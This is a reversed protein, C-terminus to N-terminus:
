IKREPDFLILFNNKPMDEMKINECEPRIIAYDRWADDVDQQMKARHMVGSEYMKLGSYPNYLKGDADKFFPGKSDDYMKQKDPIGVYAGVEEREFVNEYEVHYFGLHKTAKVKCHIGRRNLHDEIARKGAEYAYLKSEPNDATSLEHTRWHYLVKPIHAIKKKLGAYGGNEKAIVEVCRLIFDFDQAGDYKINLESVKEFIQRSVAFMHCIYNNSLLLDYNFDYKMNPMFYNTGDTNVKDEDTYVALAGGEFARAIHFLADPEIYDDHDMFSIVDGKAIKLGENTNKSIGGNEKLSFYRIREDDYETLVSKCTDDGSGDPLILEWNEYSQVLVSDIMARLFNEDTRYLPVVVSILPRKEFEYDSQSKLEKASAINAKREDNYNSFIKNIKKEEVIRQFTSVAGNRKLYSITKRINGM